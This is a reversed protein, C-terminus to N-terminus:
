AAETGMLLWHNDGYLAEAQQMIRIMFPEFDNEKV